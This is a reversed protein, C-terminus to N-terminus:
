WAQIVTEPITALCSDVDVIGNIVNYNVVLAIIRVDRYLLSEITHEIIFVIHFILVYADFFYIILRMVLKHHGATIAVFADSNKVILITIGEHPSSLTRIFSLSSRTAFAKLRRLNRKLLFCCYHVLVVPDTCFTFIIRMTLV